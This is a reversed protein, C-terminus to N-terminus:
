QRTRLILGFREHLHRREPEVAREDEAHVLRPDPRWCLPAIDRTWEQGEALAHRKLIANLRETSRFCSINAEAWKRPTYDEAHSLFDMLQGALDRDHLFRGTRENIFARSGNYADHLLATPTDAFLSESVVVASGERRSLLVSVRSRGLAEIVQAHTANSMVTFRGEVGYSRAEARITDATRGEQDQGILLIRLSPPMKRIARFLTHHRKVKGFAAVMILDVDREGRPRPRYPTPDVWHSTYLPVMRYNPSIGGVIEMDEAHNILSFLSTPYANPLVYNVINYPSSSPAVILTYRQSFAKLDCHCLLKLWEVEFGIYFVGRERPGVWPKLIVGRGTSPDNANWVFETWDVRHPDLERVRELIREHIRRLAPGDRTLRAAACLNNISRALAQHDRPRSVSDRWWKYRGVVDRVVPHYRLWDEAEIVSRKLLPVM